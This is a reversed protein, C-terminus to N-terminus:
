CSCCVLAAERGLLAAAEGLAPPVGIHTRAHQTMDTVDSEKCDRPSCDVLSEPGHPEGPLLVPTPWEVCVVPHRHQSDALQPVGFFASAQPLAEKWASNARLCLPFPWMETVPDSFVKM